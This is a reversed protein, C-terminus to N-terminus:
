QNRILEPHRANLIFNVAAGSGLSTGAELFAVLWVVRGPNHSSGMFM